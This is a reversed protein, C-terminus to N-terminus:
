SEYSDLNLYSIGSYTGHQYIRVLGTFLYPSIEDLRHFITLNSDKVTIGRYEIRMSQPSTNGLMNRVKNEYEDKLYPFVTFYEKFIEELPSSRSIHKWIAINLKCISGGFSIGPKRSIFEYEPWGWLTYDNYISYEQTIDPHWSLQTLGFEEELFEIIQDIKPYAEKMFRYPIQRISWLFFTYYNYNISISLAAHYLGEILEKLKNPDRKLVTYDVEPENPEVLRQNTVAREASEYIENVFRIFSTEEVKVPIKTIKGELKLYQIDSIQLGFLRKYFGALSEKKYIEKETLDIGGLLLPLDKEDVSTLPLDNFENKLNQYFEKIVLANNRLPILFNNIYNKWEEKNTYDIFDAVKDYNYM